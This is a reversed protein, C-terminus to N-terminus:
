MGENGDDDVDSDYDGPRFYYQAIRDYGQLNEIRAYEPDFV